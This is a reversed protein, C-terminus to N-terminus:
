MDMDWHDMWKMNGDWMNMHQDMTMNMRAAAEKTDQFEEMTMWYKQAQEAETMPKEGCWSLILTSILGITLLTKKM